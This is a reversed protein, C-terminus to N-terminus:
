HHAHDFGHVHVDWPHEELYPDSVPVAPVQALVNGVVLVFGGLFGAFVGLSVVLFDVMPFVDGLYVSPMVLLTRELFLGTMLVAAVGFFPYRMKKLGRSLLMTFPALFCLIAVMRALWNWEPLFLRVLLFNTEEPVNTYWIPLLQAFLTYAWFMTGALMLKGLDHTVNPRVWDALGLWDRGLTAVAALGCLGLLVSSMFIWGGFMNSFWWPDLSMVLDFSLMSMILAYAFGMIPVLTSNTALAREQAAEADTEGGIIRDWWAPADAGLRQKALILDPRLSNRVFVLDLVILLGLGGLTRAAFFGKQLWLEKAAPAKGHPALAVPEGHVWDPSWPYIDIGAVLFIGLGIWVIPLFAGFAEGIRKLPRGWRGQVGQMIGAFVVGGQALGVFYFCAVLWAGWTWAADGAFLGYGVAVAGWALGGFAVTRATGPLGRGKVADIAADVRHQFNGTSM